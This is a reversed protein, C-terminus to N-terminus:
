PKVLFWMFTMIDDGTRSDSSYIDFSGNNRGVTHISFVDSGYWGAEIPTIMIISNTTCAACTVHVTGASLQGSVGCVPSKWSAATPSTATLVQGGTPATAASVDINTTASQLTPAILDAWKASVSSTAQLIQGATPATAASVAVTTTASNLANASGATLTNSNVISLAGTGGTTTVVGNTTLNALTAISATNVSSNLTAGTLTGAAATVTINSTGDFSTGNITRATQLATATGANGTVSTPTAITGVNGSADVGILQGTIPTTASTVNTLQLPKTATIILGINDTTAGSATILAGVNTGSTANTHTNSIKAAYTTQASTASTGSLGVNLLTQTNSAAQTSTSTITTGIGSTLSNTQLAIGQGSGTAAAISFGNSSSNSIVFNVLSGSQQIGAFTATGTFTPDASYAPNANGTPTGGPERVQINTGDDVCVYMKNIVLDGSFLTTSIGKVLTRTGLGSINITAAGTNAINFKLNYVQGIAYSVLVPSPTLTYTNATGATTGSIPINVSPAVYDTGSVAISPVGTTTTNKLIGTALSGLSTGNLKGVTLAISPATGSASSTGTADGTATVTVAQNTTLYTNNDFVYTNTGTGTYKLLGATSTYTPLSVGNLKLVTLATAGTADGTHTANTVLGSYLSNTANDGTNTGSSTGSFTGSQTSLTGLGTIDTNPISASIGLTGVSGSTKVYGNSSLNSLTAINQSTNVTVTGSTNTLGAGFAYSSGPSYSPINLSNGILTASGSSGTTTLTITGQKAALDSVLNTVQSEAINSSLGAATGTTNQNLTPFDAAIAAAITSGNSKVIGNIAKVVPDTETYSSIYGSPNTSNYPTFGLANQKGNFTSWDTSTLAGSTSSSATSLSIQQGSISLGNTIGLTVAAHRAATNAAVDTNSSVRLNTFYLNSGEALNTTTKGSFDSNFLTSSYYKNGTGQALDDTSKAAFATNFRAATWYLNTAEIVSDTNLTGFLKFGNLYKHALGPGSFANEKLNVKATVIVLDTRTAPYYGQIGTSDLPSIKQASALIPLALLLLLLKRM